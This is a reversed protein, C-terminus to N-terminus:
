ISNKKENIIDRLKSAQAYDEDEIANQLLIELESIDFDADSDFDADADLKSDSGFDADDLVIGAEEM